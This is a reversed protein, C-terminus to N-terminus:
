LSVAADRLVAHDAVADGGRPDVDVIVEDVGAKALSALRSAVVAARGASDVLRAVIRLSGPDRGAAAAAARVVGAESALLDTDLDLVSQQALWGDGATGARRLARPSHGGIHVPVPAPPAPLVLLGPPLHYHRGALEPPRGAWCARLVDIWELMRAGRGDFPADLADFEERLWGAGVGLEIRGGAIQAVSAVQKALLVPNRQPLVLVATGLRVRTTAAAAAALVVISELYPTDTPWTARGDAAFPYPSAIVDPLVVHDSVWLSDFGAAELERAREPVSGSAVAPGTHPLKVGLQIATSVKQKM